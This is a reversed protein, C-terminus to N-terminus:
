VDHEQAELSVPHELYRSLVDQMPLVVEHLLDSSVNLYGRTDDSSYKRIAHNLVVKADPRHSDFRFEWKHLHPGREDHYHRITFSAAIESSM